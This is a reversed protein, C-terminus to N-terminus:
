ENVCLSYDSSIGYYEELSLGSDTIAEARERGVYRVHWPEFMYGTYADKGKPYRIIFGFQACHEALWIGEPTYEFDQDLSNLDFTYGTQHDSHGPRSSYTDAAEKGDDNVYRAYIAEQDDYSRYGSVIYLSIGDQEAASQMELFADYADPQIGPSYSRPLTYTKNAIMVGDVYTIGNIREITYGNQTLSSYDPLNSGLNIKVEEESLYDCHIFTGDELKFYDTDTRAIVTVKDNLEYREVTDSGQIASIRSYVDDSNVYYEGNIETETWLTEENKSLYDSHIFTGDELKFYDTDTKAVVTVKDNLRYQKVTDSDQLAYIRSYIGDTNVYYEGSKNTETWQPVDQTNPQSIEPSGSSQISSAPTSSPIDYSTGGQTSSVEPVSYGSDTSVNGSSYTNESQESQDRSVTDSKGRIIMALIFMCSSVILIAIVTIITKKFSM